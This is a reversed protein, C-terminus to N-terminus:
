RKRRSACGAARCQLDMARKAAPWGIAHFLVTEMERVDAGTRAGRFIGVFFTQVKESLALGRPSLSGDPKWYKEDTTKTTM